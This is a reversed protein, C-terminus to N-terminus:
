CGKYYVKVVKIASIVDQLKGLMKSWSHLTRKTARKIKRGIQSLTYLALPAGCLFILTLKYDIFMAVVIMGIAKLPERLAKGFIIKIGSGIITTDRILRSVTDSTGKESFFGAEIDMSHAFMDERLHALSTDVVKQATYDQYFRATCRIVTFVAMMLIIFIVAKKANGRSQERPVFGIADQIFDAYFPKPGAAIKLEKLERRNDTNRRNYRVALEINSEATALKELL